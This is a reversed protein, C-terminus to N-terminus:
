WTGSDVQEGDQYETWSGNGDADWQFEKMLTYEGNALEYLEMWGASNSEIEAVIRIGGQYSYSEVNYHHTQSDDVHWSYKMIVNSTNDEYATIENSKGDKAQEAVMFLWNDYTTEGDSGDYRVEWRYKNDLEEVTLNVTLQGDTWTYKWKDGVEALNEATGPPFLVGMFNNSLSSALSYYMTLQQAQPNESDTLKSPLTPIDVMFEPPEETQDPGTGNGNGNDDDSCAWFGLSAVLMLMFLKKLM